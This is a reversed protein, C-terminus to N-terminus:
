KPITPTEHLPRLIYCSGFILLLQNVTSDVPINVWGLAASGLLIGALLFLVVDPVKILKAIFGAFTGTGLVIGLLLLLQKAHIIAPSYEM